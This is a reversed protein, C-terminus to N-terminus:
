RVGMMSTAAPSGGNELPLPIRWVEKGVKVYGWYQPISHPIGATLAFALFSTTGLRVTNRGNTVVSTGTFKPEVALLGAEASSRASQLELENDGIIEDGHELAGFADKADVEYRVGVAREPEVNGDGDWTRGLFAIAMNNAHVHADGTDSDGAIPLEEISLVGLFVGALQESQPTGQLGFASAAGFAMELFEPQSFSPKPSIYVM